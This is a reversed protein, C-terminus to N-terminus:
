YNDILDVFFNHIYQFWQYSKINQKKTFFKVIPHMIKTYVFLFIMLVWMPLAIILFLVNVFFRIMKM